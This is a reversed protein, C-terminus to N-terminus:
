ELEERDATDLDYINGEADMMKGELINVYTGDAMPIWGTDGLEIYDSDM